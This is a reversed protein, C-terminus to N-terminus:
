ILGFAAVAAYSAGAMGVVGAAVALVRTHTAAAASAVVLAIQIALIGSGITSARHHNRDREEAAKQAREAVQKMGEVSPDDRLRAVQEQARKIRDVIAAETANPSTELLSIQTTLVSARLNKNQYFTWLDSTEQQHIAYESEATKQMLACVALAVSLVGVLVAVYQGFRMEGRARELSEGITERSRELITEGTEDSM